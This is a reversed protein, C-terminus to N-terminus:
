ALVGRRFDFFAGYPDPELVKEFVIVGVLFRIRAL